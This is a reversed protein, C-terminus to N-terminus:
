SNNVIIYFTQPSILGLAQMTNYSAQDTSVIRTVPEVIYDVSIVSQTRVVPQQGSTLDSVAGSVAAVDGNLDNLADAVVEDMTDIQDQLNTAASDVYSKTEASNWYNSMDGGGGTVASWVPAGNGTSVLVEGANGSTTPAYINYSMQSNDSAIHLSNMGNISMDAWMIDSSKGTVVGQNNWSPIGAGPNVQVADAKGSTSASVELLGDHLETLASATVQEVETLHNAVPTVASAIKEDTQASTYFGSMDPMTVASWVPTGSGTSVLIDGATGASEPAYFGGTYWDGGGTTLRQFSKDNISIYPSFTPSVSGTIIGESNWKPFLNASSNAEVNAADAKGSVSLTIASETAASDWYPTLASDIQAQVEQPTVGSGSGGGGYCKHFDIIM